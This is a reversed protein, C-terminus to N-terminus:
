AQAIANVQETFDSEGERFPPLVSVQVDRAKMKETFADAMEHSLRSTRECVIGASKVGQDAMFDALAKVRPPRSDSASFIYAGADWVALSSATPAVLSVRAHNYIPAVALARQSNTPGLVVRVDPNKVLQQSIEICRDVQSHDDYVDIVVKKGQIGGRANVTAQALGLGLLHVMSDFADPGTGSGVFPIRVYPAKQLFIYANASLIQLEADQPTETVLPDLAAIAEAWHESAYLSVAKERRGADALAQRYPAVGPRAIPAATEQGAQPHRTAAVALAGIWVLTALVLLVFAASSTAFRELGRPVRSARASAGAGGLSAGGPASPSAGGRRTENGAGGSADAAANAPSRRSSDSSSSPELAASAERSAGGGMAPSAVPPPDHGADLGDSERADSEDDDVALIRMLTRVDADVASVDTFRENPRARTCRELISRAAPSLRTDERLGAMPFVPSPIKGTLLYVLTAGWAYIDSRADTQGSDEWQEPAAYGVSGSPLTDARKDPAFRRALGFDILKVRGTRTIMVNEPKLDRFIIPPQHQHLYALIGLLTRGIRFAEREDLAGRRRVHEALNEGDVYEMVLYLQGEEEFFDSIDPLNPHRLQSLTEAESVFTARFRDFMDPHPSNMQKVAWQRGPLRLDDCLYVAGLGGRGLTRLVRYRKQIIREM